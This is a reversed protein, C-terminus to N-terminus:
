TEFDPQICNPSRDDVGHINFLFEELLSTLFLVIRSKNRSLRYMVTIRGMHNYLTTIIFQSLSFQKSWSLGGREQEVIYPSERYDTGLYSFCDKGFEAQFKGCSAILSHNGFRMNFHHPDWFVEFNRIRELAETTTAFFSGRVVDHEFELSPPLWISHAYCALHTRPWSRHNGPIGNGVVKAGKEFLNKCKQIFALDKIILDDHLFFCVDYNQWLNRSLFQQYSGWDYGLNVEYWIREEPVYNALFSPTESQSRHSVIYIDNGTASLTEYVSQFFHWGTVCFCIRKKSM